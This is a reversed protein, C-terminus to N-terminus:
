RVSPDIDRRGIAAPREPPLPVSGRQNGTAVTAPASGAASVKGSGLITLGIHIQGTSEGALAISSSLMCLVFALRWM